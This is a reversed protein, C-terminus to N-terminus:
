AGAPEKSWKQSPFQSTTHLLDVSGKPDVLRRLDKGEEQQGGGQAECIEGPPDGWARVESLGKKCGKSYM